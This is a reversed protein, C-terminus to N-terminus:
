FVIGEMFTTAFYQLTFKNLHCSIPNKQRVSCKTSIHTEMFRQLNERTVMYGFAHYLISNYGVLLFVIPDKNQATHYIIHLTHM